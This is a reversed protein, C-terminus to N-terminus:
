RQLNVSGQLRYARCADSDFAWAKVTSWAAAFKGRSFVKVWGSHSNVTEDATDPLDSRLQNVDAVGFLVPKGGADDYTLLVADAARGKEPRRVASPTLGQSNVSKDLKQEVNRM